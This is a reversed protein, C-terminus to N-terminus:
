NILKEFRWIKIILELLYTALFTSSNQAKKEKKKKRVKMDPTYGFKTLDNEPHDGSQSCRLIRLLFWFGELYSLEIISIELKLM